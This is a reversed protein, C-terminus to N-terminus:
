IHNMKLKFYSVYILFMNLSILNVKNKDKNNQKSQDSTQKNARLDQFYNNTKLEVISTPRQADKM